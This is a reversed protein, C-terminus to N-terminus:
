IEKANSMVLDIFKNYIFESFIANFRNKLVDSAKQNLQKALEEARAQIEEQSPQLKEITAVKDLVVQFLAQREGIKKANEEFTKMDMGSLQLLTELPINYTKAQQEYRSKYDNTFNDIMSQPLEVKTADLIKNVVEDIQRNKESEEKSATLQAKIASKLEEVTKADDRKLSLVFEDNLEPLKTEKVSNVTVKFVAAKGELEKAAYPTPFTVNVDKTEGAKMGIMQDEFGPIFQGSGIEMEYGKAAGGDFLKGDVSGEFDFNATDGKAIVQEAKESITAKSSLISKINSEVEEDTVETNKKAVEVGKYQGVEFETPFVDFTFVLKFGEKADLNGDVSPILQSVVKNAIEKNAFVEKSFEDCLLDLATEYLSVEGFQKNFMERSVHGKRFGPVSVNKGVKEFAADLTEKFKEPTVDFTVKAKSGAIFETNM